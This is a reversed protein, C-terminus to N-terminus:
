KTRRDGKVVEFIQRASVFEGRANKGSLIVEYEGTADSTYFALDTSNEVIVKPNWYLTTRFDPVRLAKQTADSYDKEPFKLFPQLTEYELFVSSSPFEIGGFNATTTTILMAANITREGLLYPENIVQIKDVVTPNIKMIQNIDFVPLNDVLILPSKDHSSQEKNLIHIEYNGDNKRVRGFPVIETIVEQMNPLAVFDDVKISIESAALSFPVEKLLANEDVSNKLYDRTIQYNVLLEELLNRNSEGIAIAPKPTASFEDAFDNNILIEPETGTQPEVSVFVKQVATLHNLPFVFNGKEDAQYIHIQQKNDGIVSLYVRANAIAANATKDKITGSISVDRIEPLHADKLPAYIKSKENKFVSNESAGKRVVSVTMDTKVGLSPINLSVKERTGVKKKNISFDFDNAITKSVTSDSKVVAGSELPLYPNAVLISKTTFLEPKFNRQFHTYARLQFQGGKVSEPIKFNGYAMENKLTFKGKAVVKNEKYLELYMVQSLKESMGEVDYFARFWINEGSFYIDRDTVLEVQENVQAFSAFVLFLLGFVLHYKFSLKM